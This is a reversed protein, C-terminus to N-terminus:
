MAEIGAIEWPATQVLTPVLSSIHRDVSHPRFGAAQSAFDVRRVRLGVVRLDFM